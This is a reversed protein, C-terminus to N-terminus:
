KHIKDNKAIKYFFLVMLSSSQGRSAQGVGGFIKRNDNIIGGVVTIIYLIVVFVTRM